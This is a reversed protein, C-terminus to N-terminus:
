WDWDEEEEEDVEEGWKLNVQRRRSYDWKEGSDEEDSDSDSMMDAWSTTPMKKAFSIPPLPEKKVIPTPKWDASAITAWSGKPMFVEKANLDKTAVPTPGQTVVQEEEDDSDSMLASFANPPLAVPGSAKKSCGSSEAEEVRRRLRQAANLSRDAQREKLQVERIRKNRLAIEGCYSPTHGKKHCYNCETSLLKPCVVKGQPGPVDRVYHSTYVERPEGANHCVTCFPGKKSRGASSCTNSITSRCNMTTYYIQYSSTTVITKPYM